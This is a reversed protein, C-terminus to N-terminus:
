NQKILDLLVEKSAGFELLAKYRCSAPSMAPELVKIVTNRFLQICSKNLPVNKLYGVINSYSLLYKNAQFIKEYEEVSVTKQNMIVQTSSKTIGENPLSWISYQNTSKNITTAYQVTVETSIIKYGIHVFQPMLYPEDSIQVVLNSSNPSLTHGLIISKQQLGLSVHAYLQMKITIDSGDNGKLKATIPEPYEIIRTELVTNVISQRLSIEIEPRVIEYDYGLAIRETHIRFKKLVEEMLIQCIHGEGLNDLGKVSAYLSNKKVYTFILDVTSCAGANVVEMFANVNHYLRMSYFNKAKLNINESEIIRMFYKYNISALDNHITNYEKLMVAQEAKSLNVRYAVYKLMGINVEKLASSFISFNRASYQNNDLAIERIKLVVSSDYDIFLAGDSPPNPLVTERRMVALPRYLSDIFLSRGFLFGRNYYPMTDLKRELYGKIKAEMCEFLSFAGGAGCLTGYKEFYGQAIKDPTIDVKRNKADKIANIHGDHTGQEYYKLKAETIGKLYGKEHGSTFGIKHGESYGENYYRYTAGDYYAHHEIFPRTKHTQCAGFFLVITILLLNNKM